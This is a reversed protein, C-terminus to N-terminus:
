PRFYKESCSGTNLKETCVKELKTLRQHNSNSSALPGTQNLRPLIESENDSDDESSSHHPVVAHAYSHTPAPM